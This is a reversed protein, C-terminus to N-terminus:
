LHGHRVKQKIDNRSSENQLETIRQDKKVLHKTLSVIMDRLEQPDSTTV